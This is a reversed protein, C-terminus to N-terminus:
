SLDYFCMFCFGYKGSHSPIKRKDTNDGKSKESTDWPQNSGQPQIEIIVHSCDDKFIMRSSVYKSSDDSPSSPSSTAKGKDQMPPINVKLIKSAHSSQVHSEARSIHVNPNFLPPLPLSM